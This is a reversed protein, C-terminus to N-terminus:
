VLRALCLLQLPLFCFPQCSPFSLCLLLIVLDCVFFFVLDSSVVLNSAVVLDSSVVLGV